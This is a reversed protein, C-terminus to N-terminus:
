HFREFVVVFYLNFLVPAMICGHWLGNRVQVPDSWGGAVRVEVLAFVM